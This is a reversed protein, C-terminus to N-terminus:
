TAVHLLPNEVIFTVSSKEFLMHYYNFDREGKISSLFSSLAVQVYIYNPLRIRISDVPSISSVRELPVASSTSHLAEFVLPLSFYLASLHTFFRWLFNSIQENILFNVSGTSCFEKFFGSNNFCFSKAM